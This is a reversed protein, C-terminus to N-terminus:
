SNERQVVLHPALYLRVLKAYSRHTNYSKAPPKVSTELWHALFQAVTQREVAVPLGQQQDRLAATLQAQVDKRTEGYFSKRKRKGGVYGLSLVAVWRGDDRKYISGENQGRKGM